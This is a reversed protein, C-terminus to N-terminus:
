FAVTWGVQAGGRTPVIAVGSSEASSGGLVYLAIGAGIAGVAGIGLGWALKESRKGDATLELQKTGWEGTYHDLTDNKSSADLAFYVATGGLVVGAIGIAIGAKRMGSTGRPQGDHVAPQPADVPGTTAPVTAVPSTPVPPAPTTAPKEALKATCLAEAEELDKLNDASAGEQRYSDYFSMAQKCDGALRYAQGINFLLLPKKAILYAQKWIKIADDYDAVNYHRLGEEYLAKAKAKDAGKSKGKDAFASSACLALMAAIVFTHHRTM